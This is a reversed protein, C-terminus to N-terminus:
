TLPKKVPVGIRRPYKEPTRKMKKVQILTRKGYNQPLEFTDIKELHGGLIKFASGSSQIENETIDGKMVLASGGTKVLPLQYEALVPLSAVARSVAWDFKERYRRDNGVKEARANVVSVRDLELKEVATHCFDSKKEISEVLLLDLGPIMIKLPIGPLGAGTGIDALLFPSKTEIIRLCTLSDFFHKFWIEEPDTISTLNIKKNWELLLELYNDFLSKQKASLSIGLFQNLETEFSKM